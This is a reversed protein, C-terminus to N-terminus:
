EGSLERYIDVLRDNLGEIEYNKEVYERGARGMREWEEDNRILTGLADALAEVDREPVLVASKRERVGEPFGNHRTAVVPIGCAQAEQLVLGQGERDGSQATVSPVSPSNTRGNDALAM